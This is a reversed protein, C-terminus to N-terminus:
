PIHEFTLSDCLRDLEVLNMELNQSSSVLVCESNKGIRVYNIWVYLKSADLKRKGQEFIKKIESRHGFSDVAYFIFDDSSFTGEIVNANMRLVRSKEFDFFMSDNRQVLNDKGNSDEILIVPGQYEKPVLYVRTSRNSCGYLLLFLSIFKIIKTM